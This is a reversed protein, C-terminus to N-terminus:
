SLLTASFLPLASSLVGRLYEKLKLFHYKTTEGIRVWGPPNWRSPIRDSAFIYEESWPVQITQSLAWRDDTFLLSAASGAKADADPFHVHTHTHHPHATPPPMYGSEQQHDSGIWSTGLGSIECKDEILKWRGRREQIGGGPFESIGQKNGSIYLIQM